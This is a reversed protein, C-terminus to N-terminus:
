LIMVRGNRRVWVNELGIDVLRTHVGTTVSTNSTVFPRRARNAYLRGRTGNVGFGRLAAIVQVFDWARKTEETPIKNWTLPYCFQRSSAPTYVLELLAQFAGWTLQEDLSFLNRVGGNPTYHEMTVQSFGLRRRTVLLDYAERPLSQGAQQHLWYLRRQGERRWAEAALESGAATRALPSPEAGGAPIHYWRVLRCGKAAALLDEALVPEPTRHPVSRSVPIRHDLSVCYDMVHSSVILCDQTDYKVYPVVAWTMHGAPHRIAVPDGPAPNDEWGWPTLVQGAFM